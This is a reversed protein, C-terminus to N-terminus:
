ANTRVLRSGARRRVVDVDRQALDLLVAQALTVGDGARDPLRALALLRRGPLLEVRQHPEVRDVALSGLLGAAPHLEALERRQVRLLPQAQLGLRVDERRPDDVQDGRDALALATQDDRRGLGALRQDQLRDGVGDGGVVGLAVEHDHEDVLAGLLDGVHLARDLALDDGGGEVPRGVSWVVTASSAM